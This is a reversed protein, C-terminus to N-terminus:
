REITINYFNKNRVENLAREKNIAADVITELQPISENM